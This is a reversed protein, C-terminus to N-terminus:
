LRDIDELRWRPDGPTQALTWVVTNGDATAPSDAIVKGAQDVVRYQPAPGYRVVVSAKTASLRTGLTVREVIVPLRPPDYRWGKTALNTLGLKTDAYEKHAPLMIEDLLEPRPHLYLWDNYAVISRVIADWNEGTNVLTPPQDAVGPTSPQATAPVGSPGAPTTKPDGDGSRSIVGWAIAGILVAFIALVAAARWPSLGRDPETSPPQPPAGELDRLMRDGTRSM